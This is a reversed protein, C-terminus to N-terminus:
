QSAKWELLAKLYSKTNPYSGRSPKPSDALPSNLAAAEPTLGLTTVTDSDELLDDLAMLSTDQPSRSGDWSFDSLTTIAKRLARLTTTSYPTGLELNDECHIVLEEIDAIRYGTLLTSYDELIAYHLIEKWITALPIQTTDYASKPSLIRPFGAALDAWEPLLKALAKRSKTSSHNILRTLVEEKRLLSQAIRYAVRQESIDLRAQTIADLYHPLNYLTATERTIRYEPLLKNEVEAPSFTDALKLLDEWHQLIVPLASTPDIPAEWILPYHNLIAVGYLFYQAQTTTNGWSDAEPQAVWQEISALLAPYTLQLVPHELASSGSGYTSNWKIGSKPCYHQM